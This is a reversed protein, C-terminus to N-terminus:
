ILTPYRIDYMQSPSMDPYNIGVIGHRQKRQTKRKYGGGRGGQIEFQILPTTENIDIQWYDPLITKREVLESVARIYWPIFRNCPQEGIAEMFEAWTETKEYIPLFYNRLDDNGFDFFLPKMAPNTFNQKYKMYTVQEKEHLPYASFKAEYWTHKKTLFYFHKLSMIQITPTQQHGQLPLTCKIKSNDLLWIKKLTPIYKRLLTMGIYMFTVTKEKRIEIDTMECGGQDVDLWQLEARDENNYWKYEICYNKPGGVKLMSYVLEQGKIVESHVSKMVRFTGIPTKIYYTGEM